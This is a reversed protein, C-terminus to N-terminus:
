SCFAFSPFGMVKSDTARHRAENFPRYILAQCQCQFLLDLQDKQERNEPLQWPYVIFIRVRFSFNYKLNKIM